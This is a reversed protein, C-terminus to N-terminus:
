ALARTLAEDMRVWVGIGDVDEVVGASARSASDDTKAVTCDDVIFCLKGINAITILDTAASNEFRFDGKRWDVGIASAAGGRNDAAINARGAGIAGTATAGPTLYGDATRMLLAGAFIRVNAAVLGARLDGM